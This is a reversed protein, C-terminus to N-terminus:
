LVLTQSPSSEMASNISPYIPIHRFVTFCNERHICRPLAHPVSSSPCLSCHHLVVPGESEDCRPGGDMGRLLIEQSSLKFSGPCRRGYWHSTSPSLCGCLIQSTCHSARSNLFWLQTWDAAHEPWGSQMPLRYPFPAIEAGRIPPTPLLVNGNLGFNLVSLAM